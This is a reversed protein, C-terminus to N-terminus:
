DRKQPEVMVAVSLLVVAIAVSPGHGSVFATIVGAIAMGMASAALIKRLPM